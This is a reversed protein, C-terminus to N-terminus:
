SAWAPSSHPPLRSLGQLHSDTPAHTDLATQPQFFVVTQRRTHSTIATKYNQFHTHTVQTTSNETNTKIFGFYFVSAVLKETRVYAHGKAELRAVKPFALNCPKNFHETPACLM